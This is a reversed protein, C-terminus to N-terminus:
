YMDLYRLSTYPDVANCQSYNEKPNIDCIDIQTHKIDCYNILYDILCSGIFGSSGTILIRDIATM